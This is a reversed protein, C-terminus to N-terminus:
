WHLLPRLIWYIFLAFAVVVSILLILLLHIKFVGRMKVLSCLKKIRVTIEDVLHVVLGFVLIIALIAAVVEQIFM